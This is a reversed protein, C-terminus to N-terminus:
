EFCACFIICFWLQEERDQIDWIKQVSVRGLTQISNVGVLKGMDYKSSYFLFYMSVPYSFLSFVSLLLNIWSLHRSTRVFEMVNKVTVNNRIIKLASYLLKTRHSILEVQWWTFSILARLFNRRQIDHLSAYLEM